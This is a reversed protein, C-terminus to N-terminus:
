WSVKLMEIPPKVKGAVSVTTTSTASTAASASGVAGLLAAVAFLAALGARLHATRKRHHPKTMSNRGHADSSDGEEDDHGRNRWIPMGEPSAM